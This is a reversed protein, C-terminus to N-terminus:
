RTTPRSSPSDLRGDVPAGVLHGGHNVDDHVFENGLAVLVQVAEDEVDDLWKLFDAASEIRQDVDPDTARLILEELRPGAGDLVASVLLGGHEELM